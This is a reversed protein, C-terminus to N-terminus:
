IAVVREDHYDGAQLDKTDPRHTHKGGRLIPRGLVESAWDISIRAVFEGAEVRTAVRVAWDRSGTVGAM